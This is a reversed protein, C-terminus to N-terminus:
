ARKPTVCRIALCAASNPWWVHLEDDCEDEREEEDDRQADHDDQDDEKVSYRGHICLAHWVARGLSSSADVSHIGHM